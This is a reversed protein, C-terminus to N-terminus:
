KKRDDIKEAENVIHQGGKEASGIEAKAMRKRHENGKRSMILSSIVAINLGGGLGMLFYIGIERVEKDVTVQM